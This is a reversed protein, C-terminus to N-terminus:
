NNTGDGVQKILGSWSMKVLNKLERMWDTM